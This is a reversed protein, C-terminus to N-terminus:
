VPSSVRERCSARGIEMVVAAFFMLVAVMPYGGNFGLMMRVNNTRRLIIQELTVYETVQYSPLVMALPVPLIFFFALGLLAAAWLKRKADERLLKFYLHKSTM